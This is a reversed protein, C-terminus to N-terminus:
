LANRSGLCSGWLLSALGGHQVRALAWLRGEAVKRGM